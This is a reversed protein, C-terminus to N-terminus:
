GPGAIGVPPPSPVDNGALDVANLTVWYGVGKELAIEASCGLAGLAIEGAHAQVLFRSAKAGAM